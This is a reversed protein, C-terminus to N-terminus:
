CPSEAQETYGCDPHSCEWGDYPRLPPGLDFPPVPRIMKRLMPDGCFGCPKIPSTNHTKM